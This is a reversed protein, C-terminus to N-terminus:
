GHACPETGIAMWQSWPPLYSSIRVAMWYPKVETIISPDISGNSSFMAIELFTVSVACATPSDTSPSSPVMPALSLSASSPAAAIM